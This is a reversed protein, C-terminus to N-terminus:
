KIQSLITYIVTLCHNLINTAEDLDVADLPNPCQVYGIAWNAIGGSCRLVHNLIYLRDQYTAKKLVIEALQTLWEKTLNDFESSLESSRLFAFLTSSFNKIEIKEDDANEAETIIEKISMQVQKETFQSNFLHHCFDNAIIEHLNMFYNDIQKLREASFEAESYTHQGEVM